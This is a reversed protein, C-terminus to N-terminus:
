PTNSSNALFPRILDIMKKDLHHGHFDVYEAGLRESDLVGFSGRFNWLAWGWGYEEYIELLDRMFDLTVQHSATHYVGMEGVFVEGGLEHYSRSPRYYEKLREKDYVHKQDTLIKGDRNLRIDTIREGWSSSLTPIRYRPFSDQTNGMGTSDDPEILVENFSVWDGSLAEISITETHAPIDAYIVLDFLNIYIDYQSNYVAQKWEGEGGTCVTNWSQILEGDAKIVLMISTSVQQIRIGLRYNTELPQDLRITWPGSLGETARTPTYLRGPVVVAPWVPPPYLNSDNIWSAKYHSIFPPFYGRASAVVGEKRLSFLPTVQYNINDSAILRDPDIARIAKVTNQALAEYQVSNPENLLNFSLEKSPIGKYREALIEWQRIFAEQESPESWLRNGETTRRVLSFGPASHMNLMIHINYKRGYLIMEDLLRLKESVFRKHDFNDIFFAYDFPIRVFNFGLESIMMFEHEQPPYNSDTGVKSDYNFFNTLNVGKLHTMNGRIIDPLSSTGAESLLGPLRKLTDSDPSDSLDTKYDMQNKSFTLSVEDLYFAQDKENNILMFNASHIPETFQLVLSGSLLRWADTMANPHEPLNSGTVWYNDQLGSEYLIMLYIYVPVNENDGRVYGSFHYFGGGKETLISTIDYVVAGWGDTLVKCSQKGRFSTESIHIESAGGTKFPMLSSQEFDGNVLLNTNSASKPLCGFLQVSVILILIALIVRVSKMVGIFPASIIIKKIKM